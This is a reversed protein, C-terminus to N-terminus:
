CAVTTAVIAVVIIGTGAVIPDPDDQQEGATASVSITQETCIGSITAAVVIGTTIPDDPDQEKCITAAAVSSAAATTVLGVGKDQPDRDRSRGQVTVCFSPPM